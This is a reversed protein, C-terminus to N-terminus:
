FGESNFIAKDMEVESFEPETFDDEHELRLAEEEDELEDEPDWRSPRM